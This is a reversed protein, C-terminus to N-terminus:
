NACSMCSLQEVPALGAVSTLVSRPTPLKPLIALHYWAPYSDLYKTAIGRRGRLVTKLREHGAQGFVRCSDNWRYLTAAPIGLKHLTRRVPLHSREVLRIIELKESAPYRM